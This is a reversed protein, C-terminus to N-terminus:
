YTEDFPRADTPSPGIVIEAEKLDFVRRLETAATRLVSDIDLTERIRTSIAAITQDRLANKQAEDVLRSNELALAVQEAIKQVLSRERPSWPRESDKRKLKIAGIKQGYLLLPVNDGQSKDDENKAASFVPRVGAPTYQYATRKRSTLKRWTQQTQLSTNAELQAVLTRTENLLRANDFYIAILDALTQLIGAEQPHFAQPQDSHVDLMGIVDGRVTLPLIMRSRTLPFNSDSLFNAGEIDTSIVPQKREIVLRFPNRGDTEASFSQGILPKAAASSAAQLFAYRKQEDLIFLGVHYHNFKESVLQVSMELLETVNLTEAITRAIAASERLQLARTELEETRERVQKELDTKQNVLAALTTQTDQLLRAFATKFRRAATLIVLGIVVYNFLYGLWYEYSAAPARAESLQYVGSQELVAVVAMFAASLALVLIDIRRELLLAALAVCLLFFVNGDQWPGWALIGNAGVAFCVFLFAYVRLTYPAPLVTIAVLFIYLGIFVILDGLSTTPFNAALLVLGLVSAVRLILAIFQERWAYYDFARIPLEPPRTAPNDNM